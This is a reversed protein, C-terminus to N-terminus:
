HNRVENKFWDQQKILIDPLVLGLIEWFNMYAVAASRSVVSEVEGVFDLQQSQQECVPYATGQGVGEHVSGYAM